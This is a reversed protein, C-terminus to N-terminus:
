QGEQLRQGGQMVLRAFKRPYAIEIDEPVRQGTTFYAAPIDARMKLNYLNGLSATEDLKSFIFKNPHLRGFHRFVTEADESKTTASVLLCIEREAAPIEALLGELEQIGERDYAGRGATDVMVLDCDALAQLRFRLDMATYVSYFPVDLIQAYTRLHAEAGIRYTDLTLLAVKRGEILKFYSALKAITTTKGAGTPGVLVVVKRGGTLRLPAPAALSSVLINFLRRKLGNSDTDDGAGVQDHLAYILRRAFEKEVGGEILNLYLELYIGGLEMGTAAMGAGARRLLSRIEEVEQKLPLLEERLGSLANPFAATASGDAKERDAQAKARLSASIGDGASDQAESGASLDSREVAATVEILEVQSLNLNGRRVVRRSSLIYADEGLDRKIQSLAEDVSKVLYKKIKM